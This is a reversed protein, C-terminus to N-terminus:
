ALGYAALLALATALEVFLSIAGCTDGTYGGIRLRIYWMLGLGVGCAVVFAFVAPMSGIFVLACLLVVGLFSPLWYSRSYIIGTKSAEASRAYVLLQVQWRSVWKGVVDCFLLAWVLLVGQVRLHIYTQWILGYYFIYGVVAYSGVRSDKMIALVQESSRGGGFGDFFDGLGDEHFAGTLVLRAGLALIIAISPPLLLSSLVYVCVMIGGTLLGVVPWWDIAHEYDQRELEVIRWFPLRTFMAGAALFSRLYRGM